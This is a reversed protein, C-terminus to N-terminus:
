SRRGVAEPSAAPAVLDVAAHLAQGYVRDRGRRTLAEGLSWALPDEPLALRDQRAPAGALRADARVAGGAAAGVEEVAVEARHVRRAYPAVAPAGP